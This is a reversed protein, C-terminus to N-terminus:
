FMMAGISVVTGLAATTNAQKQAKNNIGQQQRTNAMGSASSADGLAQNKLNTQIGMLDAAITQRTKNAEDVSTNAGSNFATTASLSDYRNQGEADLGTLNMGLAQRQADRDEQQMSVVTNANKMANNYYDTSLTNLKKAQNQLMPYSTTLFNQWEEDQMGVLIDQPKRM